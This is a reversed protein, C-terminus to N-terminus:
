AGLLRKIEDRVPGNLWNEDFGLQAGRIIGQQDFLVFAPYGEVGLVRVLQDNDYTLTYPIGHKKKYQEAPGPGPRLEGANAGIITLGKGGFEDHLRKLSPIAEKCPGCWSAWFDLLVVKGQLSKTTLEAGGGVPRM